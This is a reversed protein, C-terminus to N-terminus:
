RGAFIKWGFVGGLAFGLAVGVPALILFSAAGDVDMGFIASVIIAVAAYGLWAGSVTLGLWAIVALVVPLRKTM